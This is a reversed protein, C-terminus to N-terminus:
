IGALNLGCHNPIRVTTKLIVICFSYKFVNKFVFFVPDSVWYCRRIAGGCLLKENFGSGGQGGASHFFTVCQMLM